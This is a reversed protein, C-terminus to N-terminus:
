TTKKKVYFRIRHQCLGKWHMKLFLTLDNGVLPSISVRWLWRVHSRWTCLFPLLDATASPCRSPRCSTALEVCFWPAPDSAVSATVPPSRQHLPGWFHWSRPAPVWGQMCSWFPHTHTHSLTPSHTFHAHIYVSVCVRVCVFVCVCVCICVCVCVCVRECVYVFMCVCVCVCVCACVYVCTCKYAAHVVRCM